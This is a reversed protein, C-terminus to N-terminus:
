TWSRKLIYIICHRVRGLVKLPKGSAKSYIGSQPRCSGVHNSGAQEKIEDEMREREESIRSQSM